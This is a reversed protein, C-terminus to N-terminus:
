SSSLAINALANLGAVGIEGSVRQINHNSGDLVLYFPTGRMGFASAASAAADDMIVPSTWGERELWDQPPWNPRLRDTSVTISYMDVGSPLNGGNIWSQIVPVENQCHPCWHALFVIIKPRGDPAISYNNGKWDSGSVTPAIFGLAVDSGNADLVPLPNGVVSVSRFGISADVTDETSISAAMWVVLGLAVVGGIIWLVRKNM